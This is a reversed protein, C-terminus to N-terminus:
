QRVRTTSLNSPDPLRVRGSIASTRATHDAIRFYDPGVIVLNTSLLRSTNVSETLYDLNQASSASTDVIRREALRTIVPFRDAQAPSWIRAAPTPRVKLDAAYCVGAGRRDSYSHPKLRFREPRLPAFAITYPVKIGASGFECSSQSDALLRIDGPFNTDIKLRDLARAANKLTEDLALPYRLTRVPNEPM